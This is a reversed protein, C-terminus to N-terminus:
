EIVNKTKIMKNTKQEKMTVTVPTLNFLERMERLVVDYMILNSNAHARMDNLVENWRTSLVHNAGLWDDIRQDIEADHETEAIVRSALACQMWDLDDRLAAIAISEWQNQVLYINLQRRIWGLEMRVGLAFYFESFKLLEIGQQSAEEIVSLVSFMLRAGAVAHALDEPVHYRMFERYENEYVEKPVGVLLECFHYRLEIAKDRFYAVTSSIRPFVSRNRLLWRTARRIMRMLAIMMKEQVDIPVKYDLSEIDHWLTYFDFIQVAAVYAKLIDGVLCGTENQLRYVFLLGMHNVLDNSLVTANIERHLRHELIQAAYIKRVQTPFAFMVFKSVEPDELVNSKLLEQKIYIKTYALLVAIEPRTIVKGHLKRENLTKDDPLYELQRNLKMKGELYSVYRIYLDPNEDAQMTALGIATTQAYNSRLVLASVEETMDMLLQNRQKLTLDGAEVIRNLLIKLNVERDSCDVGGSNDILDANIFGGNFEYEIRALQTFGLNGGEGVVRCNLECADVRIGDNTRDGVDLDRETSAKVFTGIGGNWLLDFKAKLISRILDNPTMENADVHLLQKIEETLQIFKMSRNFVGGGRSILATDYDTWSSRPLQFLREREAFTTEPNPEPDIFIHRHDFAAILKIHKSLLMGNGFVDGSMDGIGVVTFAHTQIDLSYKRFHRKVCEWGGKATIGIKKHDYGASGGSAFADGLWFDYEHSIANAIDSFTATGKDAAVVLYSDDGDYRVTMPPSVVADGHLNDTLDLLGRIFNQYCAIVERMLEDRNEPLVFKLVFGGKAGSPVIVSNKVTQTKVLGLIETRFDERRDSWRIGGRAVEAGRLHVGEFRPSYVFIEYKPKPLPLDAIAHPDFKLSLYNKYRGQSLQFYNTRITAKIAELFRRIIRDEDFNAVENLGQLIENEIQGQENATSCSDINLKPDFRTLFLKVLLCALKPNSNLATEVYHQSFPLRTQALYKSYARLVVIEHFDLSACLVLRNFGDNEVDGSWIYSFAEQFIDKIKDLDIDLGSPLSLTFDIVDLPPAHKRTITYPQEDIVKLGMNELTPMVDSLPFANEPGFIKFQVIGDCPDIPRYLNMSLKQQENIQEMHQIDYAGTRPSYDEMYGAPFGGLYHEAYKHGVEEGFMEVLEKRLHDPWLEAMAALTKELQLPEYEPFNEPEVHILFHVRALISESFRTTFTIEKANFLEALADQMKQRLASDFRDRPVYVLMSVFRCYIDRLVFLKVQRREQLYLIGMAMETLEEVTYHFLDDRPLTELINLLEKGSHSKYDLKSRTFVQSVKSDLLPIDKPRSNFVVSTYLGLFCTVGTVRKNEDFHKVEIRDLYDSRHVRALKSRKTFLAPQGSILVNQAAEPLEDFSRTKKARSEDRLIGLSSNPIIEFVKQDGHDLLKYERAGLFTVHDNLLWQLLEQYKALEIPDFDPKHTSLDDICQQMKQRMAHWDRVVLSVESLISELSATIDALVEPDTIREIEYFIPAETSADQPQAGNEFIEVIQNKENRRVKIGGTHIGRHIILGRRNLELRTSDVLFPADDHSIEIITHKSQWGHKEYHPNYIRVRSEGVPRDYMLSWHSLLAGYVDSLDSNIIDEIDINAYYRPIFISLLQLHAGSVKESTFQILKDYFDVRQQRMASTSMLMPMHLDENKDQM